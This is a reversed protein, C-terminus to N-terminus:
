EHSDVALVTPRRGKWYGGDAASEDIQLFEGGYDRTAYQQATRRHVPVGIARKSSSKTKKALQKEALDLAAHMPTGGTAALGRIKSALLKQNDTLDCILKSEVYGGTTQDPFVVVGVRAGRKIAVRVFKQAGTILEQLKPGVMSGSCDLILMIDASLEGAPAQDGSPNLSLPISLPELEPLETPRVLLNLRRNADAMIGLTVEQEGPPWGKLETEIGEFPIIESDELVVQQGSEM